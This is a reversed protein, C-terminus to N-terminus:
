LGIPEPKIRASIIEMLLLRYAKVALSHESTNRHDASRKAERIKSRMELVLAREENSMKSFGIIFGATVVRREATIYPPPRSKYTCGCSRSEGNKLTQIRVNKTTGCVCLCRVYSTDVRDIVTWRDFVAGTLDERRRSCGCSRAKGSFLLKRVTIFQNGCDCRCLWKEHAMNVRSGRYGVPGGAVVLRGFREGFLNVARSRYM